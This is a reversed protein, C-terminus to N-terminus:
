RGTQVQVVQGSEFDYQFTAGKFEDEIILDDTGIRIRVGTHIERRVKIRCEALRAKDEALKALEEASGKHKKTARALLQDLIEHHDPKAIEKIRGVRKQVGRAQNMDAALKAARLEKLPNVGVALTTPTGKEQGAIGVEIRNQAFLRGGVVRGGESIVIADGCVVTSNLAERAILINTDSEIYADRVYGAKIGRRGSIRSGGLVGQAVTVADATTVEANDVVGGIWVDGGARIHFGPLVDGEVRVLGECDINGVTYDLNGPVRIMDMVEILDGACRLDGARAARLETGGAEVKTGQGV